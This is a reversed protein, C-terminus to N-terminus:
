YSVNTGTIDEIDVLLDIPNTTLKEIDFLQFKLFNFCVEYISKVQDDLQNLLEQHAFSFDVVNNVHRLLWRILKKVNSDDYDSLDDHFNKYLSNLFNLFPKFDHYVLKRLIGVNHLPLAGPEMSEILLEIISFSTTIVQVKYDELRSTELENFNLKSFYHLSSIIIGELNNQRHINQILNVNKGIKAKKLIVKM